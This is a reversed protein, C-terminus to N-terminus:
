DVYLFENINLLSRCFAEIAQRDAWVQDPEPLPADAVTGEAGPMVWQAHSVQGNEIVEFNRFEIESGWTRLGALAGTLPPDIDDQIIPTSGGDLYVEVRTGSLVVRLAHWQGAKVAAPQSRRLTFNQRHDGLMVTKSPIDLSVEYGYWNDAGIKPESVRLLLGGIAAKGPTMKMEVKVQGNHVPHTDWLLKAGTNQAVHLTGESGARWNGDFRSWGTPLEASFRPTATRAVDLTKGPINLTLQDFVAAGGWCAVGLRGGQDAPVLTLTREILPTEAEVNGLWFRLVNAQLSLRFPLFTQHPVKVDARTPPDEKDGARERIEVQGSRRDLSVAVGTWVGGQESARLLISVVETANDVMLRGQLEGDDFPSGQWLAFPGLRPDVVDIGEYGGGWAGRHYTWGQDPGLLFDEPALQKRFGSFLSVPVDPRFTLRGALGGFTQRADAIFSRALALESADPDRQLIAQYLAQIQGDPEASSKRAIRGLAEARQATFRGNLLILAQPAVTTIPREPLPSTTNSYDFAELLPERVSRKVMAYLSRRDQQAPPSPEWDLGPKSQGALVEGSLRPFMERGGVTTNLEGSVALMADRISEADLRRLNHRWLGHNAPDRELAHRVRPLGADVQSSRKYADTQLIQRHLAKISWGHEMFDAALWDLLEPHTPPAGVRGFDATTAVIGRGFHYHWVRNVLVRATLPNDPSALKRALALRRGSSPLLDKLPAESGPEVPPAATAAVAGEPELVSLFGPSVEAGPSGASGRILLHTAPIANAVEKVGLGWELGPLSADVKEQKIKERTADDPASAVKAEHTRRRAEVAQAAARVAADDGLPVLVASQLSEEPVAYPRVGRFNALLRYYDAQSIPDFKHDHCRACGTTLGLFSAGVAVMTDDLEDFEAQRKDDPEDDWVGLRYFGTALRTESSADPLEDGALQELIFRDFPTDNQFARVVYDRYRWAQPKYGDREYGNSQAFRVVDLWHRGWHEGYGPRELLEDVLRRYVAENIQGGPVLGESLASTWRNLEELTPPLGTLDYFLRRVLEGPTAPGNPDIEDAELKALLFADIASAPTKGSGLEPLAPKRVPQFAWYGRDEMTWAGDSNRPTRVPQGTPAEAPWPAGMTVWDTLIKIKEAPLKGAPPMELGDYNVAQVLLSEALDGPVVAAGAAGGEFVGARTDLRLEGKQKEAGHCGTCHEILLPRVKSEFFQIQAPSIPEEQAVLSCATVALVLGLLCLQGSIQWICSCVHIAFSPPIM